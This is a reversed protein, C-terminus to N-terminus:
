PQDIPDALVVRFGLGNLRESPEARNRAASRCGRGDNIWSGGRAVCYRGAQPQVWDIVAGGPYAGFSDWCWEWVNGHLDYLGWPNAGYSGVVSTRGLNPGKSANGYPYQGNFNAQMSSLNLGDDLGFPTQRGARCAYEWEAETPLRYIFGVPLRGAARERETLRVCFLIADHWSVREVPLNDEKFFSPNVQMISQYQSQTVEHKGMWFGLRLTIQTMPEEDTNHGVEAEPSGMSCTGPRIWALRFPDPNAPPATRIVRYFRRGAAPLGTERHVIHSEQLILNECTTWANSSLLGEARQLEYYGAPGRVTIVPLRNTMVISLSIQAADSIAPMLWLGFALIFRTTM